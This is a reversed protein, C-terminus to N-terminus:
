QPLETVAVSGLVANALVKTPLIRRLQHYHHFAGESDNLGAKMKMLALHMDASNPNFVLAREILPISHTPEIGLVMVM